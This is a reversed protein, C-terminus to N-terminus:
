EGVTSVAPVERSRDQKLWLSLIASLVAIAILIWGVMHFSDITAAITAGGAVLSGLISVGISGGLRQTINFLTNGDALQEEPLPALMAVLLPTTVFGIAIARGSLILATVWLPTDQELFLLFVSSVALIVFGTVVLVKLSIRSSLKQGVYTGIGMVIGQPLLAIGTAIASHGQVDQTFVPLLFVTGFAVVSCLVQLVLALASNGHRIMQVNVAPNEHRLAWFTYIVLLVLGGVLPLYCIPSDWGETTGETAGFLAATLGVALLVFGIPDFRTARNALAGIHRPVRVLLLLGIIGVPVNVLFIWRWGGAGILLGGLTPGLAPALFLTLAASVPIKGGGIGDKGLLISLALPVLPAGVFGQAARFAILSEINPALACAASVVVFLIMSVTYVRLTGFRKALYSTAALAVGLALLYGSVVWQVNDLTAKLETAIDPVAVNVISSDIMSLLPGVLLGYRAVAGLPSAQVNTTM